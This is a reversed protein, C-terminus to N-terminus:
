IESQKEKSGELAPKPKAESAPKETEEKYWVFIARLEVRRLAIPAELTLLNGGHSRGSYKYM